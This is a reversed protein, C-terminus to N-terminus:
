WLLAFCASIQSCAGSWFSFLSSLCSPQSVEGDELIASILSGHKPLGFAFFFFLPFPSPSPASGSLGRAVCTPRLCCQASRLFSLFPRGPSFLGRSLAPAPLRHHLFHNPNPGQKGLARPLCCCLMFYFM